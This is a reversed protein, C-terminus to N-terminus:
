KGDKCEAEPLWSDSRERARKTQKNQKLIECILSIVCYKDKGTHSIESLMIDEPEVWTTVFPPIEENKIALYYEESERKRERKIWM